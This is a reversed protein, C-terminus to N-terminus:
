IKYALCIVLVKYKDFVQFPNEHVLSDVIINVGNQGEPVV